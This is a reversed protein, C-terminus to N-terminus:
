PIKKGFCKINININNLPQMEVAIIFRFSLLSIKFLSRITIELMFVHAFKIIFNQRSTNNLICILTVHVQIFTTEMYFGETLHGRFQPAKSIKEFYSKSFIRLFFILCHTCAGCREAGNEFQARFPARRCENGTQQKKKRNKM